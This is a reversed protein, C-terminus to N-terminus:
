WGCLSQFEANNRPFFSHFLISFYSPVPCKNQNKAHHKSSIQTINSNEIPRVVLQDAKKTSQCTKEHKKGDVLFTIVVVSQHKKLFPQVVLPDKPLTPHHRNPPQPINPLGPTPDKSTFAKSVKSMQFTIEQTGTSRIKRSPNQLSANGRPNRLNRNVLNSPSM